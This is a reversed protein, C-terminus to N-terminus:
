SMLAKSLEVILTGVVNGGAGELITRISGLSQKIIGAKPKPSAVQTDITTLEASLEDRLAPDLDLEAAARKVKAVLAKVEGVDVSSTVVIQSPNAAGPAVQSNTVAGYFNTVHYRSESARAQESASFALGEGLIGDEELRLAWNLVTNRVTDLIGVIASPPVHLLPQLAIPHMSAMLQKEIEPPFPMMLTSDKKGGVLSELEAASQGCLRTSCIQAHEPDEFTMPMWGQFRNFVKVQGTLRRYSPVEDADGTYGGLENGIWKELERVKLKRAVVMAKRLLDSVPVKRDLAEKQLELVIAGM